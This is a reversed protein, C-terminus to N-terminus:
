ARHIESERQGAWGSRSVLPLLFALYLFIAALHLMFIQVIFILVVHFGLGVIAVMWKWRGLWFGIALFYETLTGGVAALVVPIAIPGLELMGGSLDVKFNPLSISMDMLVDGRLYSPSSKAVANAGYLLTLQLQILRVPWSPGASRIRSWDAIRWPIRVADSRLCSFALLAFLLVQRSPGGRSLFDMPLLMLVLLFGFLRPRWGLALPVCLAVVALWYGFTLIVHKYIWIIPEPASQPGMLGSSWFFFPLAVAFAIRFWATACADVPLFLFANIESRWRNFTSIRV